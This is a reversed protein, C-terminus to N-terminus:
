LFADPDAGAVDPHDAWSRVVAIARVRRDVLDDHRAPKPPPQRWAVPTRTGPEEQHLVCTRGTEYDEALAKAPGPDYMEVSTAMIERALTPAWGTLSTGAAIEPPHWRALVLRGTTNDRDILYDHQQGHAIWGPNLPEWQLVPSADPVHSDTL